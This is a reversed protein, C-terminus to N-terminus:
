YFFVIYVRYVRACAIAEIKSDITLRNYRLGQFASLSQSDFSITQFKILTRFPALSSGMKCGVKKWIGNRMAM